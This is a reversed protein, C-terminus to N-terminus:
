QSISLVFEFVILIKCPLITKFRNKARNEPLCGVKREYLFKGDAQQLSEFEESFGNKNAGHTKTEKALEDLRVRFNIANVRSCNLPQKLCVVNEKVDVIPCVRICEAVFDDLSAFSRTFNQMTYGKAQVGGFSIIFINRKFFNIKKKFKLLRTIECGHTM